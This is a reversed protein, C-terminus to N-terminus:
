NTAKRNHECLALMSRAKRERERDVRIGRARDRHLDAMYDHGVQHARSLLRERLSASLKVTITRPPDYNLQGWGLQEDGVARVERIRELDNADCAEEFEMGVVAYLGMLHARHATVTAMLDGGGEYVGFEM